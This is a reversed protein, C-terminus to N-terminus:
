ATEKRGLLVTELSVVAVGLMVFTAQPGSAQVLFGVPLIVISRALWEATAKLSPVSTKNQSTCQRDIEISLVSEAYGKAIQQLVAFLFAYAWLTSGLLLYGIVVLLLMWVFCFTEGKRIHIEPALKAAVASVLSYLAYILGIQVLSLGCLSLYLPFLIVGAQLGGCILASLLILKRIRKNQAFCFRIVEMMAKHWPMEWDIEKKPPETFVRSVCFAGAMFCFAVWFPLKSSYEALFGGLFAGVMFNAFSIAKQNAVARAIMLDDM